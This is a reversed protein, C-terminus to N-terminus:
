EGFTKVGTYEHAGLVGRYVQPAFEKMAADLEPLFTDSYAVRVEYATKGNWLHAIEPHRKEFEPVAFSLSLIVTPSRPGSTSTVGRYITV